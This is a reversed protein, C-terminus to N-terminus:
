RAVLRAPSQDLKSLTARAQESEITNLEASQRLYKEASARDSTALAIEGAHEFLRSNRIGVALAAEMQKSAEANQGNKHLAWAYCDMTFVDHRRAIERQAVELAKAPDNAYDTYYLILEHNSNDAKATELLSKREFEAFSQNAEETRGALHLAEALDYLNEAHSAATYRQRLLDIAEDYRKQQIRVKALNGLAYHYGPFLTLARQLLTEAEATKGVTLNLHAMQTIIWAADEVEGPATSQYAMNMLELSGDVDGFLERLYAARTVGPLNGPRLDLMMQASAEAENYNGLEVNADTLFGRVMVDDPMRKSLKLAEERAPGFEHKGLLLWVRIREGDFNAPSIEFSQKLTDEAQTYFKVDSTERARRSLALALANYAEFNRPNKEILRNAQAMGREAPSLKADPAPTPTQAFAAAALIVTILLAALRTM